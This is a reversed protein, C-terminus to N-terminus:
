VLKGSLRLQTATAALVVTALTFTQFTGTVAQDGSTALVAGGADLLSIKALALGAGGPCRATFQLNSYAGAPYNQTLPFDKDQYTTTLTPTTTFESNSGPADENIVAGLDTGTSAVWGGSATVGLAPRGTGPYVAGVALVTSDTGSGDTHVIYGYYTVATTLTAAAFVKIGTSTITLATPVVVGVTAGTHDQGAKVQAASPVTASRTWVARATGTASTTTFGLIGTTASPTAKTPASLVPGTFAPTVSNSAASAPGFGDSNRAMVSVTQAVGNVLGTITLPSATGDAFTGSPNATARYDIVPPATGAAPATFTASASANGATAVGITPAGPPEIVNTVTFNTTVNRVNPTAASDAFALTVVFPNAHPLPEFQFAPNPALTRTLGTGALTFLLADAGGITVTSLAENSTYTIAVATSNEPVNAAFPGNTAGTGTSTIDPPTTDGALDTIVVDDYEVVDNDLRFGHKTATAFIANPAVENPFTSTITSANLGFRMHNAQGAHPEIWLVDGAVPTFNYVGRGSGVGGVVEYVQIGPFGSWYTLRIFNSADILRFILECLGGVTKITTSVRANATGANRVAITSSTSNRKAANGVIQAAGSVMEWAVGGDSPSALGIQDARNFTDTLTAM